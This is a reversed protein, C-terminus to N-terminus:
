GADPPPTRVERSLRGIWELGLVIGWILALGAFAIMTELVLNAPTLSWGSEM